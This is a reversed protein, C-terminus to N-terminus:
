IEKTQFKHFLRLGVGPVDEYLGPFIIESTNPLSVLCESDSTSALVAYPFGETTLDFKVRNM